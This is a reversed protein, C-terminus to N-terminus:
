DFPNIFKLIPKIGFPLRKSVEKKFKIFDENDYSFPTVVDEYPAMQEEYEARIKDAAKKANAAALDAAYGMNDAIERALLYSQYLVYVSGAGIGAVVAAKGVQVGSEVNNKLTVSKQYRKFAEREYSGMSLRHEIIQNPKGRPM